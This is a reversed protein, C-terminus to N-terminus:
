AAVQLANNLVGVAVTDSVPQVVDLVGAVVLVNVLLVARQGVVLYASPSRM